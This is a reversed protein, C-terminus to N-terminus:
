SDLREALCGSVRGEPDESIQGAIRALEEKADVIQQRLQPRRPEDLAIKSASEIAPSHKEDDTEDSVHAEHDPTDQLLSPQLHGDPTKIPLRTSEREHRGKKRPRREYDQELNWAAARKAFGNEFIDRPPQYSSAPTPLPRQKSTTSQAMTTRSLRPNPLATHGVFSIPATVRSIVHGDYIPYGLLSSRVETSRGKTQSTLLGILLCAEGLM